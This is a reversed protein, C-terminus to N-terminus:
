IRGCKSIGIPEFPQSGSIKLHKLRGVFIMGAQRLAKAMRLWLRAKKADDFYFLAIQCYTVHFQRTNVWAALLIFQTFKSLGNMSAREEVLSCSAFCNQVGAGQYMKALLGQLVDFRLTEPHYQERSLRAMNPATLFTVRRLEDHAGDRELVDVYEIYGFLNLFKIRHDFDSAVFVGNTERLCFGFANRMRGILRDFTAIDLDLLTGSVRARHKSRCLKPLM